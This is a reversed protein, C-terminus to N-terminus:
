FIKLRCLLFHNQWLHTYHKESLPIYKFKLYHKRLLVIKRIFEFKECIDPINKQQIKDSVCTIVTEKQALYHQVSIIINQIM